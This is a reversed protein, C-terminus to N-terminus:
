KQSTKGIETTKEITHWKELKVLEGKAVDDTSLNQLVHRKEQRKKVKTHSVRNQTRKENTENIIIIKLLNQWAVWMKPPM